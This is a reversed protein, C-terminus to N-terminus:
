SSNSEDEEDLRKRTVGTHGFLKAGNTVINDTEGAIDKPHPVIRPRLRISVPSLLWRYFGSFRTKEILLILFSTAVISFLVVGHTINQIM